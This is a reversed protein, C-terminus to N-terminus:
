NKEKLTLVQKWTLGTFQEKIGVTEFKAGNNVLTNDKLNVTVEKGEYLNLDSTTKLTLVMRGDKNANILAQAQEEFFSSPLSFLENDARSLPKNQVYKNDSGKDISFVFSTNTGETTKTNIIININKPEYMNVYLPYETIEGMGTYAWSNVKLYKTVFTYDFTITFDNVKVINSFSNGFESSSVGEQTAVNTNNSESITFNLEELKDMTLPFPNSSKYDDEPITLLYARLYNSLTSSTETKYEVAKNLYEVSFNSANIDGIIPTTTQIKGSGTMTYFEIRKLRQTIGGYENSKFVPNSGWNAIITLTGCDKNALVIGKINHNISRISNELIQSGTITSYDNSYITTRDEPYIPTVSSICFNDSTSLLTAIGFNKNLSAFYYDPVFPLSVKIIQNYPEDLFFLYKVEAFDLLAIRNGSYILWTHSLNTEADFPITYNKYLTGNSNLSLFRSETTNYANYFIFFKSNKYLITLSYRKQQDELAVDYTFEPILSDKYFTISLKTTDTSKDVSCFGYDEIRRFIKDTETFTQGADFSIYGNSEFRAYIINNEIFGSQLTSISTGDTIQIERFNLFDATIYITNYTMFYFENEIKNVVLDAYGFKRTYNWTTGNDLSHAIYLRRNYPDVATAILTSDFEYICFAFDDLNSDTGGFIESFESWTSGNDDSFMIAAKNKRMCLIRGTSTTHFLLDGSGKMDPLSKVNKFSIQKHYLGM